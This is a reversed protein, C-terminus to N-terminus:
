GSVNPWHELAPDRWPGAPVDALRRGPHRLYEALNAPVSPAGTANYKVCVSPHLAESGVGAPGPKSLGMRRTEPLLFRYLGSLSQDVPESPNSGAVFTKVQEQDFALGCSNAKEVMWALTLDSLGTDRCGGGVENHVGSFWVQEVVQGKRPVGDWLTAPFTGRREDIAVAHYAHKVNGSLRHDHFRYRRNWPWWRLSRLPIGLSGVTDWVGICQVDVVNSYKEGPKHAPNAHSHAQRFEVVDPQDADPDRRRYLDM